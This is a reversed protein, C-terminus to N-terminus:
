CVLPLGRPKPGPGVSDTAFGRSRGHSATTAAVKAGAIKKTHNSPKGGIVAVFRLM